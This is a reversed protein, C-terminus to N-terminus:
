AQAKGNQSESSSNTAPQSDANIMRSISNELIGMVVERHSECRIINLLLLRKRKSMLKPFLGRNRLTSALGGFYPEIYANYMPSVSALYNGFKEELKREDSIITNLYRIHTEFEETEAETLHFVGPKDNGQKLPIIEFEINESVDLRVVYGKNWGTNRKGPWDYIFNGLGYFVPKSNYIEYGSFAHTHHAIVCDAGLDILYRYLKQTRPSPLEYFENGAHVIVIVNDNAEKAEKIQYYAGVPELPNCSYLGDPSTIFEEDAFNLVAISKGKKRLVYPEATEQKSLGIGVTAVNNAKCLELTDIVGRSGYDMIHNNAMAALGIGTHQLIKISVPHAKQHPGTKKRGTSSFTLPCELDTIILDNGALTDTFDNFIPEFNNSLALKEVRNIPCFDGTILIKIGVKNM